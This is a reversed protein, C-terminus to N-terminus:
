PRASVRSAFASCPGPSRDAYRRRMGRRRQLRRKRAAASQDRARVAARRVHEPAARIRAVHRAAGRLARRARGRRAAGQLEPAVRVVRAAAHGRGRELRRGCPASAADGRHRQQARAGDARRLPSRRRPRLAPPVPPDRPREPRAGRPRLPTARRPARVQELDPQGFIADVKTQMRALPAHERMPECVAALLADLGALDQERLREELSRVAEVPVHATGLGAYLADAAGLAAGTLSCYMGVLGPPLATLHHLMAADPCLGIACEPMGLRASGSVLRRNAAMFVGLGAGMTVGNAIAVVPMRKALAEIAAIAAYELHLITARTERSPAATLARVDGGASFAHADDSRILLARVRADTAASAAVELVKGLMALNLANLQGGRAITLECVGNPHYEVRVGPHAAGLAAEASELAQHLAPLTRWDLDGAALRQHIVRDLAVGIALKQDTTYKHASILSAAWAPKAPAGDAAAAIELAERTISALDEDELLEDEATEVLADPGV